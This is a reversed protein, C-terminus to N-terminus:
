HVSTGKDEEWIELDDRPESRRSPTLAGGWQVGDGSHGALIKCVAVPGPPLRLVIPAPDTIDRGADDTSQGQSERRVVYNCVDQVVLRQNRKPERLNRILLWGHLLGRAPLAPTGAPTSGSPPVFAAMAPQFGAGGRINLAKAAFGRQTSSVQDTEAAERRPVRGCLCAAAGRQQGQRGYRAPTRRGRKEVGALRGGQRQQSQYGTEGPGDEVIAPQNM